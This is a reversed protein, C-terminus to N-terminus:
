WAEKVEREFRAIPSYAGCEPIEGRLAHVREQADIVSQQWRDLERQYRVRPDNGQAYWEAMEKKEQQRRREEMTEREMREALAQNHATAEQIVAETPKANRDWREQPKAAPAKPPEPAPPKDLRGALLGAVIQDETMM